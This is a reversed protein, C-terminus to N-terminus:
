MISNNLNANEKKIDALKKYLVNNLYKDLATDGKKSNIKGIITDIRNFTNRKFTNFSARMDGIDELLSRM